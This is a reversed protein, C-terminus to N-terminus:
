LFQNLHEHRVDGEFEFLEVEVRNEKAQIPENTQKWVFYVFTYSDIFILINHTIYIEHAIKSM